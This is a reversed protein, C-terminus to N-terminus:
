RERTQLHHLISAMRAVAYQMALQRRKDSAKKKM